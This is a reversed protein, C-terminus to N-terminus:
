VSQKEINKDARMDSKLGQLVVFTIIMGFVLGVM